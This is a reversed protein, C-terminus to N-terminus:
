YLLLKNKMEWSFNYKELMTDLHVMKEKSMPLQVCYVHLEDMGPYDSM